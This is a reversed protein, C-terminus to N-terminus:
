RSRAKAAAPTRATGGAGTSAATASTSRAPSPTSATCATKSGSAKSRTPRPAGSDSLYFANTDIGAGKLTTLSDGAGRFTLSKDAPLDITGSLQHVGPMLFIESGDSAQSVAAGLTAYPAAASGDGAADDGDPHVNIRSTGNIRATALNQAENAASRSASEAELSAQLAADAAVRATEEDDVNQQIQADAAERAAQEASDAAARASAESTEAATARIIEADMSAQLAADAAVRASRKTMSTRSFKLM